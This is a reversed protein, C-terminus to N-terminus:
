GCPARKGQGWNGEAKGPRHQSSPHWTKSGCSSSFSVHQCCCSNGLARRFSRSPSFRWVSIVPGQIMSWHSPCLLGGLVHNLDFSNRMTEPALPFLTLTTQDSRPESLVIRRGDKTGREWKLQHTQEGPPPLLGLSFFPCSCAHTTWADEWVLNIIEDELGSILTPPVLLKLASLRTNPAWHNVGGEWSELNFGWSPCFFSWKPFLISNVMM